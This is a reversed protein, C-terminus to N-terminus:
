VLSHPLQHFVKELFDTFLVWLREYVRQSNSRLRLNHTAFLSRFADHVVHFLVGFLEHLLSLEDGCLEDSDGDQPVFHPMIRQLFRGLEPEPLAVDVAHELHHFRQMLHHFLPRLRHTLNRELLPVPTLEQFSLLPHVPELHRSVFGVEVLRPIRVAADPPTNVLVALTQHRNLQQMSRWLELLHSMQLESHRTRIVLNYLFCRM